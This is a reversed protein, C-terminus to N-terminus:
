LDRAQENPPTGKSPHHHGQEAFKVAEQLLDILQKTAPLDLDIQLQNYSTECTLISGAHMLYFENSLGMVVISDRSFGAPTVTGVTKIAM